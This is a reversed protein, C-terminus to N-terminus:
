HADFSEGIDEELIAFGLGDTWIGNRKRDRRWRSEFRMGAKEMVRRSAANDIDCGAWIRHLGVVQFGFEVMARLAETAYGNGWFEKYISYFVEVTGGPELEGRKFGIFGILRSNGQKRIALQFPLTRTSYDQSVLKSIFVKAEDQTAPSFTERNYRHQEPSQDIAIMAQLDESRFEDLVLRVTNIPIGTHPRDNGSM